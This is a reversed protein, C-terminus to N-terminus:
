IKNFNQLLKLGSNQSKEPHFQVGYVNKKQVSSVFKGGYNFTSTIFKQDNKDVDMHFSHLFYFYNKEPFDKFLDNEKSNIIIKNWGMHPLSLKTNNKMSTTKSHIINLGATLKEGKDIHEEGISSLIQFGVCIGLFPIENRLLIEKLLDYIKKKKLINICNKYSGVGPLIIKNAKKILNLDDGCKFDIELYELANCVSKLNSTGYDIIYIM